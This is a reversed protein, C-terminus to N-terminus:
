SPGSLQVEFPQRTWLKPVTLHDRGCSCRTSTRIASVRPRGCDQCRCAVVFWTAYVFVLPACFVLVDIMFSPSSLSAITFAVVVLIAALSDGIASWKCVNTDGVAAIRVANMFALLGLIAATMLAIRGGGILTGSWIRGAIQDVSFEHRM